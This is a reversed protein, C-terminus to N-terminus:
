KSPALWVDMVNREHPGYAVNAYTPPPRKQESTKVTPEPHAAAAPATTVVADAARTLVPTLVATAIAFATAFASVITSRLRRGKAHWGRQAPREDARAGAVRERDATQAM